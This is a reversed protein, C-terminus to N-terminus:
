YISSKIQKQRYPKLELYKGNEREKSKNDWYHIKAEEYTDFIVSNVHERKGEIDMYTNVVWIM